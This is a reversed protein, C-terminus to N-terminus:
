IEYKKDFLESILHAIEKEYLGGNKYTLLIMNHNIEIIDNKIIRCIVVDSICMRSSILKNFLVKDIVFLPLKHNYIFNTKYKYIFFEDLIKEKYLDYKFIAKYLAENIM